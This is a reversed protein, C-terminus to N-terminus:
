VILNVNIYSFKCNVYSRTDMSITKLENSFNRRTSFTWSPFKHLINVPISVEPDHNLYCSVLSTCWTECLLLLLKLSFCCSFPSLCHWGTIPVHLTLIYSDAVYLIILHQTYQCQMSREHSRYNWKIKGTFSVLLKCGLASNLNLLFKSWSQIKLEWFWDNDNAFLM